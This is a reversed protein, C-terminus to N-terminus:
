GFNKQYIGQCCEEAQELTLPKEPVDKVDVNFQEVSKEEIEIDNKTIKTKVIPKKLFRQITLVWLRM